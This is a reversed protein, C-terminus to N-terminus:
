VGYARGFHKTGPAPHKSGEIWVLCPGYFTLLLDRPGRPLLIDLLRLKPCFGTPNKGTWAVVTEPRASFTEGEAVQVRATRGMTALVVWCGDREGNGTGREGFETTCLARCASMPIVKVTQADTRAAAPAVLVKESVAFVPEACPIHTLFPRTSDACKATGDTEVLDLRARDRVFWGKRRRRVAKGFFAAPQGRSMLWSGGGVEAFGNEITVVVAM